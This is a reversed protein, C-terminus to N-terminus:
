SESKWYSNGAAGLQCVLCKRAHMDTGNSGYVYGCRTCEVKYAFQLHDTGAVGCHGCCRQGNGNICGIQVSAGEGSRWLSDIGEPPM